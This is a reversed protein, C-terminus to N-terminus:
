PLPEVTAMEPARANSEALLIDGVSYRALVAGSGPMILALRDGSNVWVGSDRVSRVLADYQEQAVRGADDGPRDFALRNAEIGRVARLGRMLRDYDVGEAEYYINAVSNSVTAYHGFLDAQARDIGNSIEGAASRVRAVHLVADRLRDRQQSYAANGTVAQQQALVHGIGPTGLGFWGDSADYTSALRSEATQRDGTPWSQIDARPVVIASLLNEATQRRRPDAAVDLITDIERPIRRSEPGRGAIQDIARQRLGRDDIATAAMITNLMDRPTQAAAFRQAVGDIMAAPLPMIRSEDVGIRRQAEVTMAIVTTLSHEGTPNAQAQDWAQRIAPSEAWVVGAPDRAIREQREAALREVLAAHNVRARVGAMTGAGEGRAMAVGSAIVEEADAPLAGNEHRAMATVLRRMTDPDTTDITESATVGLARSVAAVYATTNNESPPAWRSVIGQVTNLGHRDRYRDIQRVMAEIGAEPTDFRQFGTASGPPRLNGWNNQRIGIPADAPPPARGLDPGARSVERQRTVDAAAEARIRNVDDPSALALRQTVEYTQRAVRLQEIRAEAESAPYAQRLMDDTVRRAGEAGLGVGRTQLAQVEDSFVAEIQGRLAVRQDNAIATARAQNTRVATMATNLLSAKRDPDVFRDWTTGSLEEVARAPDRNIIGQIASQALGNRAQEHLRTRAQPTVALGDIMGVTEGYVTAFRDPNNLLSNRNIELTEGALRVRNDMRAGAEFRLADGSLSARYSALREALFARSRPSPAQGLVREAETDFDRLLTPTFDPAGPAAQEQREVLQRDGWERMGASARASWVAADQDAIHAAASVIDRSARDIQGGAVDFAAIGPVARAQPAGVMQVSTRQDYQPIRVRTVM